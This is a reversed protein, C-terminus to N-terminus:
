FFLLYIFFYFSIIFIVRFSCGICVTLDVSFLFLIFYFSIIFIVSFSCGTCVTLDVGVLYGALYTFPSMCPVMSFFYHIRLVFQKMTGLPRTGAQQGRMVSTCYSRIWSIIFIESLLCGIRANLGISFFLKVLVTHPTTCSPVISFFYNLQSVHQQQIRSFNSFVNFFCRICANLYADVSNLHPWIRSLNSIVSVFCCIRAYNM